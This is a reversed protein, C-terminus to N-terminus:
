CRRPPSILSIAFAEALRDHASRIAVIVDRRRGQDHLLHALSM